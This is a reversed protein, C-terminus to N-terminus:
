ENKRREIWILFFIPIGIWGLIRMVEYSKTLAVPIGIICMTLLWMVVIILIKEEERLEYGTKKWKRWDICAIILCGLFLGGIFFTTVTFGFFAMGEHWGQLDLFILLAFWLPAIYDLRDM